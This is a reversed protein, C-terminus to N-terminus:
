AGHDWTVVARMQYVAFIPYSQSQSSTVGTGSTLSQDDSMIVHMHEKRATKNVVWQDKPKNKEPCSPLM